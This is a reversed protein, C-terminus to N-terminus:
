FSHRSFLGSRRSSFPYPSETYESTAQAVNPITYGPISQKTMTQRYKLRHSIANPLAEANFFAPLKESLYQFPQSMNMAKSDDMAVQFRFVDENIKRSIRLYSIKSEGSIIQNDIMVHDFGGTFDAIALIFESRIDTCCQVNRRFKSPVTLAVVILFNIYTIAWSDIYARRVLQYLHVRQSDDEKLHDVRKTRTHLSGLDQASQSFCVNGERWLKPRVFSRDLAVNDLREQTMVRGLTRAARFKEVRPFQREHNFILGDLM